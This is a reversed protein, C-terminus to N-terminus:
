FLCELIRSLRSLAAATLERESIRSVWIKSERTSPRLNGGWGGVLAPGFDLSPYLLVDPSSECRYLDGSIRKMYAKLYQDRSINLHPLKLARFCVEYIEKVNIAAKSLLVGVGM